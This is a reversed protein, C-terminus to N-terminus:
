RQSDNIQRTKGQEFLMREGLLEYLLAGMSWIDSASTIRLTSDSSHQLMEPSQIAETGRARGVYECFRNGDGELARVLPLAEGFDAFVVM